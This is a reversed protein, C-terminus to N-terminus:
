PTSPAHNSSVLWADFHDLIKFGVYDERCFRHRYYCAWYSMVRRKTTQYYAENELFFKVYAQRDLREIHAFIVDLIEIVYEGVLQVVYPVVWESPDTIMRYLYKERLYGNKHRTYFCEMIRMLKSSLASLDYEYLLYERMPIMLTEGHVVVAYPDLICEERSFVLTGASCLAEIDEHLYSPFGPKILSAQSEM